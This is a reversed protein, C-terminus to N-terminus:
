FNRIIDYDNPINPIFFKDKISTNQEQNSFLILIVNDLDDIYSISIIIGDIERITFNRNLYTTMLYEKDIRKADSFIKFFDMGFKLNSITVQELMPQVIFVKKENIFIKKAAMEPYTYDWLVSYPRKTYFKGKYTLVNGNEDTITQKFNAKFSQMNQGFAFLSNLSLIFLIIYKM